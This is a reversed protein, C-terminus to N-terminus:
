CADPVHPWFCITIFNSGGELHEGNCFGIAPTSIGPTTWGKPCPLCSIADKETVQVYQERYLGKPCDRVVNLEWFRGPPVQCVVNKDDRPGSYDEPAKLGSQCKLCASLKNLSPAYTDGICQTANGGKTSPLVYGALAVCDTPKTSRAQKTTLGVSGPNNCTKPTGMDDTPSNAKKSGGPCFSGAECPQCTNANAGTRKNVEGVTDTTVTFIYEEPESHSAFDDLQLTGKYQETDEEAQAEWKMTIKLDYIALKKNGKRTSTMAEGVVDTVSVIRLNGSEAPDIATLAETLRQKCWDFRNKEEWHWGNVNKGDDRHQVLWRPDREDWKAM